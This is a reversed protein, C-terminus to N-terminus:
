SAHDNDEDAFLGESDLLRLFDVNDAQYYRDLVDLENGRFVAVHNEDCIGAIADDAAETSTAVVVSHPLRARQVREIVRVLMPKGEIDKM